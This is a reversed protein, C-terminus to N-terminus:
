KRAFTKTEQNKTSVNIEKHCNPHLRKFDQREKSKMYKNLLEAEAEVDHSILKEPDLVIAEENDSPYDMWDPYEDVVEDTDNSSEASEIENFSSNNSLDETSKTHFNVIKTDYKRKRDAM